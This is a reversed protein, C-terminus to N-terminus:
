YFAAKVAFCMERENGGHMLAFALRLLKRRSAIVALHSFTDYRM